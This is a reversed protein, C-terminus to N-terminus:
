TLSPQDSSRWLSTVTIFIGSFHHFTAIADLTADDWLLFLANSFSFLLGISGFDFCEFYTRTLICQGWLLGWSRNPLSTIAPKTNSLVSPFVGLFDEKSPHTFEKFLESCNTPAECPHFSRLNVTSSWTSHLFACIGNWLKQLEEQVWSSDGGDEGSGWTVM